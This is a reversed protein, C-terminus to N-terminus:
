RARFVGTRWFGFLRTRAEEGEREYEPLGSLEIHREDFVYLPLLHTVDKDHQIHHLLPQDHVSCPLFDARSSSLARGSGGVRCDLPFSSSALISM